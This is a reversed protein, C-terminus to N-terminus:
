ATFQRWAKSAKDRNWNSAPTNDCHCKPAMARPLGPRTPSLLSFSGPWMHLFVVCEVRRIKTFVWKPNKRIFILRYPFTPDGDGGSVDTQYTGLRVNLLRDWTQQSTNTITVFKRLVPTKEDCVYRVTVKADADKDALQFIVNAGTAHVVSVSSLEPTRATQGPLGIDFEVEPGALRLIRGTIRNVMSEARLGGTLRLRFTFQPSTIEVLGPTQNVRCTQAEACAAAVLFVLLAIAKQIRIKRCSIPM